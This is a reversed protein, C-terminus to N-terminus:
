LLVDAYLFLWLRPRERLGGANTSRNRRYIWAHVHRLKREILGRKKGISVGMSYMRRLMDLWRLDLNNRCLLLRPKTLRWARVLRGLRCQNSDVDGPKSANFRSCYLWTIADHIDGERAPKVLRLVDRHLHM